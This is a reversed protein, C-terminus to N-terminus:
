KKWILFPTSTALFHVHNISEASRIAFNQECVDLPEKIWSSHLTVQLLQGESPADPDVGAADEENGDSGGDPGGDFKDEDEGVTPDEKAGDKDHTSESVNVNIWIFYPNGSSLFHAYKVADKSLVAARRAFNQGLVWSPFSTFSSHGSEHSLQAVAVGVAEGDDCADFGDVENWGEDIELWSEM